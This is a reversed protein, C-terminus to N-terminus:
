VSVHRSLLDGREFLVSIGGRMVEQTGADLPIAAWDPATIGYEVEMGTQYWVHLSILKGYDVTQHTEPIGFHEIWKVDELYKRPQDTLVM